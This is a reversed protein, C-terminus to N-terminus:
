AVLAIAHRAHIIEANSFSEERVKKPVKKDNKTKNKIVKKEKKFFGNNRKGLKFCFNNNRYM